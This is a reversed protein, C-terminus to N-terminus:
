DRLKSLHAIQMEWLLSLALVYAHSNAIVWNFSAAKWKGLEPLNKQWDIHMKENGFVGAQVYYVEQPPQHHEVPAGEDIAAPERLEQPSLTSGMSDEQETSMTEASTVGLEASGKPPTNEESEDPNIIEEDPMAELVNMVEHNDPPSLTEEAEQTMSKPQLPKPEVTTEVTQNILDTASKSENSLVEVRVKAPTEPTFQLIEAVKPSVDVLRDNVFPGRDNIRVTTAKNNELNTMRVISPLPLTKHCATLRDKSYVEGNATRKGHFSDSYVSAVGIEDYKPNEGPFYWVGNVKYPKGIKHVADGKTQAWFPLPKETSKGQDNEIVIPEPPLLREPKRRGTCSTLALLGCLIVISKFYNNKM